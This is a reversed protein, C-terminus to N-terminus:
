PQSPVPSYVCADNPSISSGNVYTVNGAAFYSNSTYLKFLNADPIIPKDPAKWNDPMKFSFGYCRM